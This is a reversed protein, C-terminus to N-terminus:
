VISKTPLTLHTYSVPTGILNGGADAVGFPSATLLTGSNDGILSFSADFTAFFSSVIDPGQVDALNGAVISNNLIVPAAGFSNNNDAIGGGFDATNETITSNVISVTQSETFIGGGATTGSFPSSASNGSVTSNALSLSSTGNIFIGGGESTEGRAVNGSVTSNTLVVNGSSSAIGGGFADILVQPSNAVNESISSQDITLNGDDSQIGGGGSAARNGAITSQSIDLNAYSAVFIGGGRDSSDGGTITLGSITANQFIAGAFVFVGETNDDFTGALESAEVDVISSGAVLVDNGLTDGSVVVGLNGADITTSDFVLLRSQLRIVDAAEGNFTAADFTITDQGQTNDAATIAERLSIAGDAGPSAILSSISSTNGDVFDVATGVTIGALLKRDELLEFNTGYADKSRRQRRRAISAKNKSNRRTKKSRKTM